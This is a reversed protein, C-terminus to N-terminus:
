RYDFFFIIIHIFTNKFFIFVFYKLSVENPQIPPAATLDSLYEHLVPMWRDKIRRETREIVAIHQARREVRVRRVVKLDRQFLPRAKIHSQLAYKSKEREDYPITGSMSGHRLSNSIRAFPKM